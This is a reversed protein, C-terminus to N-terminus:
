GCLSVDFFRMEQSSYARGNPHRAMIRVPCAGSISVKTQKMLPDAAKPSAAYRDGLGFLGARECM